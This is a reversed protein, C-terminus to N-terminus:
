RGFYGHGRGQFLCIGPDAIASVICLIVQHHFVGTGTGAAAPSDCCGKFLGQFLGIGPAAFVSCLAIDKGDFRYAPVFLDFLFFACLQSKDDAGCSCM